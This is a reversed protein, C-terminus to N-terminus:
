RPNPKIGLPAGAAAGSAFVINLLGQWTGRSRLPVLDSVLISVVTTMGGGGIGAFARAAILQGMTRSLGCGLCGVGFVTYAFLLSAKRGFIDSLKGYLPQFSTTTLLYATAIWSTRNLEKLDNGIAGYSSVVECVNTGSTNNRVSYVYL